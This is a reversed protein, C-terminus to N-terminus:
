SVSKLMLTIYEKGSEADPLPEGDIEYTKGMHELRMKSKLDNRYRLKARARIESDAAQANLVDKVSLPTIDAWLTLIREWETRVAGSATRTQSQDFIKIRHRLKGAQM